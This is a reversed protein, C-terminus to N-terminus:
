TKNNIYDEDEEEKVEEYSFHTTNLPLLNNSCLTNPMILFSDSTTMNAVLEVHDISYREYKTSEGSFRSRVIDCAKITLTKKNQTEILRRNGNPVHNRIKEMKAHLLAVRNPALKLM